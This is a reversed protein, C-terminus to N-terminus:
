SLETLCDGFLNEASRGGCTNGYAEYDSGIPSFLYLDDCAELDGGTCADYLADLEADDGYNMPESGDACTGFQPSSELGGCISGFAEYDSGIPSQFWLADCAELDGVACSDYLADLTPDDGYSGGAVGGGTDGSACNGRTLTTTQGCTSGFAEYDSGVPSGWYLDDCANLDGAACQDWLIDLSANDGYTDGRDGGDFIGADILEEGCSFIAAMMEPTPEETALEAVELLSIGAAEFEDLICIGAEVSGGSETIGDVFAQEFLTLDDYGRTDEAPAETTTTTTTEAPAATTTTEAPADTDDGGTADDDVADAIAQAAACDAAIDIVTQREDATLDDPDSSLVEDMDLGSSAFQEEFCAMESDSLGLEALVDSATEGDGGGCAAAVLVVASLAIMLRKMEPNGKRSTGVRLCDAAYAFVQIVGPHTM